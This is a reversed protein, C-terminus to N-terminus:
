CLCLRKFLFGLMKDSFAVIFEGASAVFLDDKKQLLCHCNRFGLLGDGLDVVFNVVELLQSSFLMSFLLLFFFM